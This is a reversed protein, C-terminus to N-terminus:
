RIKLMTTTFVNLNAIKSFDYLCLLDFNALYCQTKMKVFILYILYCQAIQKVNTMVQSVFFM